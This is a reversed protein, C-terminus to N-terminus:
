SSAAPPSVASAGHHIRRVANMLRETEQKGKGSIFRKMGECFMFEKRLDADSIAPIDGAKEIIARPLLNKQIHRPQGAALIDRAVADLEAVNGPWQYRELIMCVTMDVTPNEQPSVIARTFMHHLLPLIDAQRRRLPAIAIQVAAFEAAFDPVFVGAKEVTAPGTSALLRPASPPTKDGADEHIKRLQDILADQEPHLLHHAERLFLTGERATELVERWDASTRASGPADCEIAVLLRDKRPSAEHIARAVRTRGAGKEGTILASADTPGVRQIVACVERMPASEAVIGGFCHYSGVVLALDMAGKLAQQYALARKITALLENIHFPKEIYDFAGEKMAQAASGVDQYGSVVIVPIDADRLRVQKLLEVGNMPEMHIDTVLLDFAGPKFLDLAENGSSASVVDFGWINLVRDLYRITTTTDDVLLIRYM